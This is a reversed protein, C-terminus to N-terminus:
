EQFFPGVVFDGVSFGGAFGALRIFLVVTSCRSNGEGRRGKEGGFKTM